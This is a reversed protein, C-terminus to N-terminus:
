RKTAAVRVHSSLRHKQLFNQFDAHALEDRSELLYKVFSPLEISPDEKAALQTLELDLQGPTSLEVLELGARKVLIRIGEVSMLNLHEPVFVYPAKDWLVQLDFGSITRTTFFFTGGDSLMDAAKRLYDFPSFEHELQEFATVAGASGSGETLVTVGKEAFEEELGPLPDLSAFDDFLDRRRMEEFLAASNSGIDVVSRSEPTHAEDLLQGMWLTHSRLLHRRRAEATQRSFHEVRYHSASSSQYYEALAAQTPRPSVYVSDCQRCQQYSFGQKEFAEHADDAACAPCAMRVRATKDGFFKATDELSLRKFESLLSHPRIDADHLGTSVVVRKM